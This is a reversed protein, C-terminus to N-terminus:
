GRGLRGGRPFPYILKEKGGQPFCSLPDKFYDLYYKLYRKLM